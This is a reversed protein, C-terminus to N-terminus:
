PAEKLGAEQVVGHCMACATLTQGFREAQDARDEADALSPLVHVLQEMQTLGVSSQPADPREGFEAQELAKAGETWASPSDSVLGVWLWDVAWRHLPMDGADEPLIPQPIRIVHRKPGGGTFDHCEACTLGLQAVAAGAEALDSARGVNDAAAQMDAYLPRWRRPLQRPADREALGRGWLRAAALDGHIVADRAATAFDWHTQMESQLTPVTAGTTEQAMAIGLLMVLATM